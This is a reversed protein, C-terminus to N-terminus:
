YDKTKFLNPRNHQNRADTTAHAPQARRTSNACCQCAKHQICFSGHSDGCSIIVVLFRHGPHYNLNKNEIRCYKKKLNSFYIQIKNQLGFIKSPIRKRSPIQRTMSATDLDVMKHEFLNILMNRPSDTALKHM